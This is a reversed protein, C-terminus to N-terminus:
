LEVIWGWAPAPQGHPAALDTSHDQDVALKDGDALSAAIISQLDTVDYPGRGDHTQAEGSPLLHIWEPAAGDGGVALPLSQSALLAILSATKTM